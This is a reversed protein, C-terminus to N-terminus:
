VDVVSIRPLIGGDLLRKVHYVEGCVGQIWDLRSKDWDYVRLMDRVMCALTYSRYSGYNVMRRSGRKKRRIIYSTVRGNKDRSNEYVFDRTNGKLRALGLDELIGTLRGKDWNVKELRRTVRRAEERTDYRGYYVGRRQIDYKDSDKHHVIYGTSHPYYRKLDPELVVEELEFVTLPDEGSEVVRKFDTWTTNYYGLWNRLTVDTVGLLGAIERQNTYGEGLLEVIRRIRTDYYDKDRQINHRIRRQPFPPLEMDYYPNLNDDASYCLAEEDFDYEILLDREWLADELRSFYIMLNEGDNDKLVVMWKSLSTEYDNLPQIHRYFNLLWTYYRPYGEHIRPLQTKDWNCEQLEKRVYYAQEYTRCACYYEGKYRIHYSQPGRERIEGKGYGSPEREPRQLRDPVPYEFGDMYPNDEQLNYDEQKLSTDWNHERLIDRYYLAEELSHITAYYQKGHRIQYYRKTSDLSINKYYERTKKEESINHDIQTHNWNSEILKDRVTIAEHFNNYTGYTRIKNNINKIITYTDNSNKKIYRGKKQEYRTKRTM